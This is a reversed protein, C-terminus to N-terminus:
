SVSRLRAAPRWRKSGGSRVACRKYEAEASLLAAMRRLKDNEDRLLAIVNAIADAAAPTDNIMIDAHNNSNPNGSKFEPDLVPDKTKMPVSVARKHTKRFFAVFSFAYHLCFWFHCVNASLRKSKPCFFTLRTSHKM